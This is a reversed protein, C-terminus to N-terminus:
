NTIKFIVHNKKGHSLKLVDDKFDDITINSKDNNITKNNIKIGFNKIARRAESKSKLLNSMIVVNIINLGINLKDKKIKIVPLDDGFSGSGFTKEATKAAKKAAVIGHLMSTTENALLVKLKNINKNKMIEIESIDKDTFMKLFRIVDRDYTNRWFQWYDYPSLLNKDLWVAGRETKGM